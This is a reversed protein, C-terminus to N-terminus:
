HLLITIIQRLVTNRKMTISNQNTDRLKVNMKATLSMYPNIALLKALIYM